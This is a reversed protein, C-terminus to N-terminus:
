HSMTSPLWLTIQPFAILAVVLLLHAIVHPWVGAFIEGVPTNSSKAVIFVNLGV